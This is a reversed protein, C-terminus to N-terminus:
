GKRDSERKKVQSEKKKPQVMKNKELIIRIKEEKIKKKEERAINALRGKSLQAKKKQIIEEQLLAVREASVKKKKDRQNIRFFLFRFNTVSM